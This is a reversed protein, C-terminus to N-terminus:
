EKLGDTKVGNKTLNTNSLKIKRHPTNTVMPLRKTKTKRKDDAGWSVGTTNSNFWMIM